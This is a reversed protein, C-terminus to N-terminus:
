YDVIAPQLRDGPAIRQSRKEYRAYLEEAWEVAAPADTEVFARAIGDADHAAMGMGDDYIFLEFPIDDGVLLHFRGTSLAETTESRYNELIVDSVEADFIVEVDTGDLIERHVVEVYLPSVITSFMCLSDTAEIRDIIRKVGFHAQRPQRHTVDADAFLELPIGIDPDEVTNLFPALRTATDLDARMDEIEDTVTRGLPTLEIGEDGRSLLGKEELSSTARHITSRSMSLTRELERPEGSRRRLTRLLPFRQVAEVM